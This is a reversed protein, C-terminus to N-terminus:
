LGDVMVDTPQSVPWGRTAALVTLNGKGCFTELVLTKCGITELRDVAPAPRDAVSVDAALFSCMVGDARDMAEVQKDYFLKTERTMMHIDEEVPDLQM